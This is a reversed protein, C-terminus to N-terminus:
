SSAAARSRSRALFKNVIEHHEPTDFSAYEEALAYEIVGAVARKMHINLARKTSQVAHAPQAAIREALAIAETLVDGDAVVRNALGIEVAQQAPIRASTLLYEKARLMSMLLPWTPAGGDAATLGVGVHPDSLYASEAILVIDSCAALSAGLGVAPGNIAAVIPLPCELMERVLKGASDIEKRRMSKDDWLEVFHDFDGGASFAKGAGTLVVARADPDEALYQWVAVLADHLTESTANMAEPRNLTVIRLAGRSEILLESCAPNQM